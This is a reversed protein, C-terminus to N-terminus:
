PVLTFGPVHKPTVQSLHRRDTTALTTVKLREAMAVMSLDVFGHDPYRGMLDFARQVDAPKLPEVDLEGTALSRVFRREVSSGLRTQLLYTVEPLVTVPALILESVEELWERARDHWRDDADALAYLIGTDVLIAM